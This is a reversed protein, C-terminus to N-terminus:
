KCLYESWTGKAAIVVELIRSFSGVYLKACKEKPHKEWEEPCYRELDVLNSPSCQHVCGDRWLHETSNLYPSKKPPISRHTKNVGTKNVRVWDSFRLVRSFTKVRSQEINKICGDKARDQNTEWVRNRFFMGVASAAVVMNSQLSPILSTISLSRRVHHKFNHGFPEIKTEDFWLIKRRMTHSYNPHRRAFEWRTM